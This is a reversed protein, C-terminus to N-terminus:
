QRHRPDFDLVCVIRESSLAASLESQTGHSDSRVISTLGSRLFLRCASSIVCSLAVGDRM